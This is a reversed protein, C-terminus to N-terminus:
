DHLLPPDPNNKSADRHRNYQDRNQNYPPDLVSAVTADVVIRDGLSSGSSSWAHNVVWANMEMATAKKEITVPSHNKCIQLHRETSTAGLANAKNTTTREEKQIEKSSHIV